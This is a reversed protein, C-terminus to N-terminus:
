KVEIIYISKNKDSYVSNLSFGLKNFIDKMCSFGCSGALYSETLKSGKKQSKNTKPNYHRLGYFKDSNLKSIYNIFHDEILSAFVTGSMDYGMGSCNYKTKDGRSDLIKCYLGNVSDTYKITITQLRWNEKLWDTREQKTLLYKM